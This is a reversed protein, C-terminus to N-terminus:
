KKFGLKEYIKIASINKSNVRLELQEIESLSKALGVLHKILNTAIGKRRFDPHVYIEYLFATHAKKPYYSYGLQATAIIKDNKFDGYVGFVPEKASYQIKNRYYVIPNNVESVYLSVFAAPDTKLSLLRLKQYGIADKAVLPRIM